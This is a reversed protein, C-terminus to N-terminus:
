KEDGFTLCKRLEENYKTFLKSNSNILDKFTLDEKLATSISSLLEHLEISSWETFNHSFWEAINLFFYFCDSNYLLYEILNSKRLTEGLNSQEKLNHIMLSWNESFEHETTFNTTIEAIKSDYTRSSSKGLSDHLGTTITENPCWFIKEFLVALSIMVDKSVHAYNWAHKFLLLLDNFEIRNDDEFNGFPNYFYVNSKGTGQSLIILEGDREVLFVTKFYKQNLKPIKENCFFILDKRYIKLLMNEFEGGSKESIVKLANEYLPKTFIKHLVQDKFGGKAKLNPIYVGNFGKGIGCNTGYETFKHIRLGKEPIKLNRNRKLHLYFFFVIVNEDYINLYDRIM